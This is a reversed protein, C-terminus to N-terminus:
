NSCSKSNPSFAKGGGAVETYGMGQEEDSKACLCKCFKNYLLWNLSIDVCVDEDAGDKAPKGTGPCTRILAGAQDVNTIAAIGTKHSWYGDDDQRYWHYDKLWGTEKTILMVKSMGDPCTGDCDNNVENGGSPRELGDNIAKAELETCYLSSWTDGSGCGPQAFNDTRNNTGYNYCNNHYRVNIGSGDNTQNWYTTTYDPTSYEGDIGGGDEILIGSGNEVTISYKNDESDMDINLHVGDPITLVADSQVTINGKITISSQLTCSSSVTWNGEGYSPPTCSVAFVEYCLCFVILCAILISNLHKIINKNKM